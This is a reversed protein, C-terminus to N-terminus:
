KHSPFGTWNPHTDPRLVDGLSLLVHDIDQDYVSRLFKYKVLLQHMAFSWTMEIPSFIEEGEKSIKVYERAKYDAVEDDEASGKIEILTNTVLEFWKDYDELFEPMNDVADILRSEIINDKKLDEPEFEKSTLIRNSKLYMVPARVWDHPQAKNEVLDWRPEARCYAKKVALGICLSIDLFISNWIPEWNMERNAFAKQRKKVAPSTDILNSIVDGLKDLENANTPDFDSLNFARRINSIACEERVLFYKLFDYRFKDELHFPLCDGPPDYVRYGEFLSQEGTDSFAFVRTKWPKLRSQTAYPLLM